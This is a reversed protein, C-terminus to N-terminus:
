YKIIDAPDVWVIVHKKNFGKTLLGLANLQTKVAQLGNGGLWTKTEVIEDRIFHVKEESPYWFNNSGLESLQAITGKEVMKTRTM